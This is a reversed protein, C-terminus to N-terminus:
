GRGAASCGCLQEKLGEVGLMVPCLIPLVSAFNTLQSVSLKIPSPFLFFCVVLLFYNMEWLSM